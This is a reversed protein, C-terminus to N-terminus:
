RARDKRTMSAVATSAKANRTVAGSTRTSRAADMAGREPRPLTTHRGPPSPLLRSFGVAPWPDGEVRLQGRLVATLGNAEGTVLRRWLARDATMVADARTNRHSVDVRGHDIQLLWHEVTNEDEVDIRVTAEVDRLLPQPTAVLQDFFEGIRDAAGRSM